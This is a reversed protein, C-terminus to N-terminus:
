ELQAPWCWTTKMMEEFNNLIMFAQRRLCMPHKLLPSKIGSAIDCSPSVMMRFKSLEKALLNNPVFHPVNPLIVQVALQALPQVPVLRDVVTIGTEVVSNAKGVKDEFLVVTGNLRAAAKISCYGVRDGRALAVLEVSCPFQTIGRVGHKRSLQAAM